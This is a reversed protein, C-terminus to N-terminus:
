KYSKDAPRIPKKSTLNAIPSILEDLVRIAFGPVATWLPDGPAAGLRSEYKRRIRLRENETKANAIKQEYEDIQSQILSLQKQNLSDFAKVQKDTLQRTANNLASQSVAVGRQAAMLRIKSYVENLNAAAMKSLAPKQYQLVELEVKRYKQNLESMLSENKSLAAQAYQNDIRSELERIQHPRLEKVTLKNENILDINADAEKIQRKTLEVNAKSQVIEQKKKQYDGLADLVGTASRIAAERGQQRLIESQERPNHLFYPSAQAAQQNALDASQVSAAPQFGGAGNSMNPNLGAARLLAVQNAPSNYQNERNWQDVNWKNQLYSLHKNAENTEKVAKYNTANTRDAIELNARNTEKAAKLSENASKNSGFLNLAGGLLSSAGVIIGGGLIPDIICELYQPTREKLM